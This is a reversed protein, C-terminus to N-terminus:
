GMKKSENKKKRKPKMTYVFYIASSDNDFFHKISRTALFKKKSLFLQAELNYEDVYCAIETRSNSNLKDILNNILKTGINNKRHEPHVAINILLIHNSKMEFILYGIMQNDISYYFAATKDRELIAKFDKEEWPHNFCLKELKILEDLNTRRLVKINESM